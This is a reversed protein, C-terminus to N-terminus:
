SYYARATFHTALLPMIWLCQWSIEVEGGYFAAAYHTLRVAGCPLRVRGTREGSPKPQGSVKADGAM